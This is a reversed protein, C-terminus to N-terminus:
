EERKYLKQSMYREAADAMVCVVRDGDPMEGAIQLAANAVAGASGGVLLGETIALEKLTKLAMRDTITMVRTVLSMDCTGPIFRNGIGEILHPGAKGGGFVSGQSEVLYCKVDPNKERVYRAIGTFTGGTGAGIVIADVKGETQEWIEPATWEQHVKPNSPNQFQQLIVGGPTEEVLQKAKEIAGTIGAHDPTRYVTGGLAEVLTQKEISQSEPMVAIVKYGLQTGVLALGLGTNGATPEILTNKGRELRGDEEADRIMGMATRDKLSGGPNCLELKAWVQGRGKPSLKNLKLMPTAGILDLISDAVQLAM